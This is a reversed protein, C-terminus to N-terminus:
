WYHHLQPGAQPLASSREQSEEAQAEEVGVELGPARVPRQQVQRVGGNGRVRPDEDRGCCVWFSCLGPSHGGESAACVM